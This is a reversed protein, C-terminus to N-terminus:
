DRVNEPDFDCFEEDEDDAPYDIEMYPMDFIEKEIPKLTGDTESHALAILVEAIVLNFDDDLSRTSTWPKMAAEKIREFAPRFEVTARPLFYHEIFAVPQSMNNGFGNNYYDHNLKIIARLVESQVYETKGMTPIFRENLEDALPTLPHNNFWFIIRDTM